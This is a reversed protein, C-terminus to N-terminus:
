FKLVHSLLLKRWLVDLANEIFKNHLEIGPWVCNLWTSVIGKYQCIISHLDKNLNVSWHLYLNNHYYTASTLLNELVKYMGIKNSGGWKFFSKTLINLRNTLQEDPFNQPFASAIKSKFFVICHKTEHNTILLILQKQEKAEDVYLSVRSENLIISICKWAFV